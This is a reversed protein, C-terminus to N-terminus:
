QIINRGPGFKVLQRIPANFASQSLLFSSSIFKQKVSIYMKNYFMFVPKVNIDPTERAVSLVINSIVGIDLVVSSGIVGDNM